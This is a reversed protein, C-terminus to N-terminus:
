PTDGEIGGVLIEIPTAINYRQETTSRSVAATALQPGRLAISLRGQLQEGLVVAAISAPVALTLSGYTFAEPRNTDQTHGEMRQGTAIVRLNAAILRAPRDLSAPKTPITMMTERTNEGAVVAASPAWLDVRDGPRIFGGVSSVEDVPISIARYGAELWVTQLAVPSEQQLHSRLIPTGSIVQRALVSQDVSDFEQPSVADALAWQRPIERIALNEASIKEGDQLDRAAVLVEILGGRPLLKQREANVQDQAYQQTAWFAFVAAAVGLITVWYRALLYMINHQRLQNFAALRASIQTKLTMLARKLHIVLSDVNGM